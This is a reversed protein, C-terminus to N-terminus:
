ETEKNTKPLRKDLDNFFFFTIFLFLSCLGFFFGFNWNPNHIMHENGNLILGIPEVVMSLCVICLIISTFISLQAATKM